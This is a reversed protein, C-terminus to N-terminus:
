VDDFNQLYALRSLEYIKDTLRKIKEDVLHMSSVFCTEIFGDLEVQVKYMDGGDTIEVSQKIGTGM